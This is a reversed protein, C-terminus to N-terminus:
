VAGAAFSAADVLELVVQKAPPRQDNRTMFKYAMTFMFRWFTFVFSAIQVSSVSYHYVRYMYLSYTLQIVFQPIDEIWMGAETIVGYYKPHHNFLLYALESNSFVIGYWVTNIVALFLLLMTVSLFLTTACVAILAAFLLIRVLLIFTAVFAHVILGLAVLSLQMTMVMWFLVNITSYATDITIIGVAGITILVGNYFVKALFTFIGIVVVVTCSLACVIFAIAYHVPYIFMFLAQIPKCILVTLASGMTELFREDDSDWWYWCKVSYFIKSYLATIASNFGEVPLSLLKSGVATSIGQNCEEYDTLYVYLYPSEILTQWRSMLIDYVVPIGLTINLRSCQYADEVYTIVNRYYCEITAGCQIPIKGVSMVTLLQNVAVPLVLFTICACLYSYNAHYEAADDASPTLTTNIRDSLVVMRTYLQSAFSCDTGIDGAALLVYVASLIITYSSHTVDGAVIYNAGAPTVSSTGTSILYDLWFSEAPEDANDKSCVYFACSFVLILSFFLSLLLTVSFPQLEYRPYQVFSLVKRIRHGQCESIYYNGKTDLRGYCPENLTALAASSGDGSSSATGNGVVTTIIGSVNVMRIRHNLSDCIYMNDYGDFEIGNVNYLTVATAQMNDGNYGGSTSGSGAITTIVGTSVTIKRIVNYGNVDGFYVNSDIDLSIASPLKITAATAQGYDGSYGATGTGALTVILMLGQKNNTSSIVNRIRHNYMDSIYLNDRNDLAIGFPGNLSAM